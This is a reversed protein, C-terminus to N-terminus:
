VPSFKATLMCMIRESTKTVPSYSWMQPLTTAGSVNLYCSSDGLNGLPTVDHLRDLKPCNCRTSIAATLDWLEACIRHQKATVLRSESIQARLSLYAKSTRIIPSVSVSKTNKENCTGVVTVTVVVAVMVTVSLAAGVVDESDTSSGSDAGM